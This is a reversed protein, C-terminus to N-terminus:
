VRSPWSELLCELRVTCLYIIVPGLCHMKYLCCTLDLVSFLRITVLRCILPSRVAKSATCPSRRPKKGPGFPSFVIM